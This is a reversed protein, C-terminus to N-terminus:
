LSKELMQLPAMGYATIFAKLFVDWGSDKEYDYGCEKLKNLYGKVDDGEPSYSSSFTRITYKRGFVEWADVSYNPDVGEDQLYLDFAAADCCAENEHMADPLVLHFKLHFNKPLNKLLRYEVRVRVKRYNSRIAFLLNDGIIRYEYKVDNPRNESICADSIVKEIYEQLRKENFM